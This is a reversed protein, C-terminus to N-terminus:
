PAEKVHGIIRIGVCIAALDDEDELDIELTDEGDGNEAPRKLIIEGGAGGGGCLEEFATSLASQFLTAGKCNGCVDVAVALSYDWQVFTLEFSHRAWVINPDYETIM